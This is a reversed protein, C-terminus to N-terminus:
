CEGISLAMCVFTPRAKESVVEPVIAMPTLASVDRLVLGSIADFYCFYLLASQSCLCAPSVSPAWVLTAQTSGPASPM